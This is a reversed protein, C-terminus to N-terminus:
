AMMAAARATLADTLAPAARVDGTHRQNANLIPNTLYRAVAPDDPDAAGYAVLCHAMVTEACRSAGDDCKIAIGLNREPLSVCMVGEAGTKVLARTGTHAMIETCFRKTGAVMHPHAAVARRIIAAGEALGEGLGEGNAFRAFGQAIAGLPLAWNPVSCGDVGCPADRVPVKCVAEITEAVRRQVAHDPATYGEGPVGLLSALALMGAHKGSCNHRVPQASLGALMLARQSPKHKPWAPGCELATDDLGIKDLISRVAAVHEPEGNHSACMVAIEEDTFGFDAHAPDSILALAQFPKISSRPFALASVNGLTLLMEGSALSVAVAARHRSEVVGGRTVDVLIPNDM